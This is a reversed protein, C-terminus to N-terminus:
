GRSGRLDIFVGTYVREIQRSPFSICCVVDIYFRYQVAADAVTHGKRM